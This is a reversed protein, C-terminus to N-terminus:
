FGRGLIVTQGGGYWVQGKRFDLGKERGVIWDGGAPITGDRQPWYDKLLATNLTDIKERLAKVLQYDVEPLSGPEEGEKLWGEQTIFRAITLHASPVSYRSAPKVGGAVCKDYIDRRLHHYTYDDADSDPTCEGAAPLFSLAMASADYSILPKILRARHHLTYNVIEDAAGSTQLNSVMRDIESRTLSHALEIVTLHLNELPM